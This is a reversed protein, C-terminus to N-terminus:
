VFPWTCTNNEIDESLFLFLIEGGGIQFAATGTPASVRLFNPSILKKRILMEVLM